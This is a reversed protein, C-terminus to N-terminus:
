FTEVSCPKDYIIPAHAHWGKVEYYKKCAIDFSIAKEDINAM